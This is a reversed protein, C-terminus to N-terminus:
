NKIKSEIYTEHLKQGIDFRIDHLDKDVNKSNNLNEINSLMIDLMGLDSDKIILNIIHPYNENFIKFKNKVNIKFQEFNLKKLIVIDDQLIYNKIINVSEKIAYVMTKPDTLRKEMNYIYIYYIVFKYKKKM